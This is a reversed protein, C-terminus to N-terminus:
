LNKQKPPKIKESPPQTKIASYQQHTYVTYAVGPGPWDVLQVTSYQVCQIGFILSAKEHRLTPFISGLDSAHSISSSARGEPPTLYINEKACIM